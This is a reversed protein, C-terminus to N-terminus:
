LWYKEIWSRILIKKLCQNPTLMIDDISAVDIDPSEVCYLLPGKEVAVQNTNEEVMPHARTLRVEMDFMIEIISEKENDISM